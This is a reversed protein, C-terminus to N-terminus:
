ANAASALRSNRRSGRDPRTRALRRMAEAPGSVPVSTSPASQTVVSAAPGVLGGSTLASFGRVSSSAPGRAGTPPKGASITPSACATSTTPWCSPVTVRTSVRPPRGRWIRTVGFGPTGASSCSRSHIGSAAVPTMALTAGPRSRAGCGVSETPCAGATALVAPARHASRTSWSLPALAGAARTRTSGPRSAVAPRPTSRPLPASVSTAAAPSRQTDELRRLAIRWRAGLRTTGDATESGRDSSDCKTEPGEAEPRRLARILSTTAEASGPPAPHSTVATGSSRSKRRKSSGAIPMAMMTGSCTWPALPLRQGARVAACIRRTGGCRRRGACRRRGGPGSPPTTAVWAVLRWVVCRWALASRSRGTHVARRVAARLGARTQAARPRRVSTSTTAM